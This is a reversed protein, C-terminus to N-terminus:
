IGAERYARFMEIYSANGRQLRARQHPKVEGVIRGPVGFVLSNDPVEMGPSIVAGAGVICFDGLRSTSFRRM